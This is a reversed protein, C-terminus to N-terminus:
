RRGFAVTVLKSSFTTAVSGQNEVWGVLRERQTWDAEANVVPLRREGRKNILWICLKGLIDCDVAGHIRVAHVDTEMMM